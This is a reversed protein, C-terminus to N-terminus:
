RDSGKTKETTKEDKPVPVSKLAPYAELAAIEMDDSTVIVGDNNDLRAKVNLTRGTPPLTVSGGAFDKITEKLAYARPDPM